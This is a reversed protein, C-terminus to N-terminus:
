MFKLKQGITIKNPDKLNNIKILKNYNLKYKKSISYLTDGQKITYEKIYKDQKIKPRNDVSVTSQQETIIPPTPTPIPIEPLIPKPEIIDEMVERAAEKPTIEQVEEEIFKQDQGVITHKSNSGMAFVSVIAVHTVIVAWFIKSKLMNKTFTNKEESTNQHEIDQFLADEEPTTDIHYKTNM